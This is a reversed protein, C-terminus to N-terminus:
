SFYEGDEVEVVVQKEDSILGYAQQKVKVTAEGAETFQYITTNQSITTAWDDYTLLINGEFSFPHPISDTVINADGYGCGSASQTNPYVEITINSGSRTAKILGPPEIKYEPTICIETAESIDLIGRRTRPCIKLYCTEIVPVEIVNDSVETFYVISSESHNEKKDRLIGLLRQNAGEEVAIQFKMIESDVVIIRTTTFLEIRTIDDLPYLDTYNVLIGIQDDITYTDSTYGESLLGSYAFMFATKQFEYSIGDRSFYVDYGYEKGTEKVPLILLAIKGTFNRYTGYKIPIVSVNSLDVPSFDEEIWGPEGPNYEGETLSARERATIEIYGAFPNKIIKSILFQKTMGISSVSIEILDGPLLHYYSLSVKFSVEAFPYTEIDFIETFRAKVVDLNNFGKLEYSHNKIEGTISCVAENVLRVTRDTNNEDKYNAALDCFIQNYALRTFSFDKLDREDITDVLGVSHTQRLYYIDNEKYLVLELHSFVTELIKEVEQQSDFCLNLGWDVSNYYNAVEQFSATDCTAGAKTLIDYIVCSPNEGTTVYSYLPTTLVRKVKFSMSPPSYQNEGLFWNQFYVHAVGPLKTSFEAYEVYSSTTGDNFTLSANYDYVEEDKYIEELTIKGECLVLHADIYVSYGSTGGGGGGGKGGKAKIPYYKVNGYWIISGPVRVTGYVMPIVQGEEARTVQINGIEQKQKSQSKSSVVAAYAATGVSIAVAAIIAITELGM